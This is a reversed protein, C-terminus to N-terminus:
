NRKSNQTSNLKLKLNSIINNFFFVSQSFGTKKQTEFIIVKKECVIKKVCYM